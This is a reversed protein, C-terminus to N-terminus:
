LWRRTQSCYQTYVVGFKDDLMREEPEIQLRTLVVVFVADAIVLGVITGVSVCWASVVLLLGLYMPNRTFRYIGSTVIDSAQDISHPNVTTNAKRFRLVGVVAVLVGVAALVVALLSGGSSDLPSGDLDLVGVLWGIVAAAAAIM